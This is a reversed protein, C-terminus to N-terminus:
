PSPSVLGQFTKLSDEGADEGGAPSTWLSATDTHPQRSPAERFLFLDVPSLYLCGCHNLRNFTFSDKREPRHDLTPEHRPTVQHPLELTLM